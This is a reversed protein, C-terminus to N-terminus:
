LTSYVPINEEKVPGVASDLYEALLDATAKDTQRIYLADCLLKVHWDPSADKVALFEKADKTKELLSQRATAYTEGELRALQEVSERLASSQPQEAAVTMAAGLSVLVCIYDTTM